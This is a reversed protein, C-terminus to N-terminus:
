LSIEGSLRILAVNPPALFRVQPAGQQEHGVGHSVYV